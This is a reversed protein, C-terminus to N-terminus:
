QLGELALKKFKSKDFEIFPTYCIWKKYVLPWRITDTIKRNWMPLFSVLSNLICITEDCIINRNALTLLLPYDGETKLMSNFDSVERIQQCDNRFTYSLSQIRAMRATHIEKANEDLLNGAWINSEKLLNSIVFQNFEEHDYKRSLKYFHYKDKRKEFSDIKINCKGNYKFYDYNTTFHLKLVHFISFAEYGTM